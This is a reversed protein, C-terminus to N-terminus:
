RIYKNIMQFLSVTNKSLNQGPRTRVSKGSRLFVFFPYKRHVFVSLESGELIQFCFHTLLCTLLLVISAILTPKLKGSGHATRGGIVCRRCSLHWTSFFATLDCITFSSVYRISFM